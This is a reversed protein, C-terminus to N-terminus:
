ALAELVATGAHLRNRAQLVVASRPGDLIEDRAVVNRRLPLCHLFRAGPRAARFWSEDVCWSRHPERLAAEARPDGWATLSGWSKAYLVHAGELADREETAEVSGGSVAALREAEAMVDPHLDFGPPRLLVVEMGRQVAMTLVSDPVAHPLAKPHFTWSLVLKGRRPVELEDLTQWDALAQCPHWRTSELNVVPIGAFRRFGELISDEWDRALDKGSPFARVGLLDVFQGLVAAAERVHEAAAGDMVARDRTELSWSGAGSLQVLDLGLSSAARQMSAQTRLSPALFLLGLARGPFRRAAAGRALEGARAVLAQVEGAPLLGLHHFEKV